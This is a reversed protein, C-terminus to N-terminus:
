NQPAANDVLTERIHEYPPAKISFFNGPPVYNGQVNESFLLFLALPHSFCGATFYTLVVPMDQKIMLWFILAYKSMVKNLPTKLNFM